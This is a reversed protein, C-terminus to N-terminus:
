DTLKDSHWLSKSLLGHLSANELAAIVLHVHSFLETKVKTIMKIAALNVPFEADRLLPGLVQLCEEPPLLRAITM